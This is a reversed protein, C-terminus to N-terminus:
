DPQKSLFLLRDHLEEIKSSHPKEAFRGDKGIIFYQPIAKVDFKEAINGVKSDPSESLLHIGRISHDAIAKQWNFNEADLSIQVIVINNAEFESQFAALDNMKELCPRCWSAWFNLLIVKGHLNELTVPNSDRDKTDIRPVSTGPAYRSEKEYLDTIKQDFRYFTNTKLFDIYAPLIEQIYNGNLANLINESRFFALSKGSLREIALNNQSVFRNTATPDKEMQTFNMCAMLYQRYAHSGINESNTPLEWMFEFFAPEVHHWNRYVSGYFLLNYGWFYLIEESLFDRFVPTVQANKKSFEDLLGLGALRRKDLYDKFDAPALTQMRADMDAPVSLWMLGSKYRLLNFENFDTPNEQLYQRWLQNNAAGRGGFGVVIPFNLADAEIFVTDTPELFFVLKDDDYTLTVLQADPVQLNFQFTGSEDLNVQSTTIQGDIYRHNVQIEVRRGYAANKMVGAVLAQASISNKSIIEVFFFLFILNRM